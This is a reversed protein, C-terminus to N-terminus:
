KVLTAYNPKHKFMLCQLLLWLFSFTLNFVEVPAVTSTARRKLASAARELSWLQTGLVFVQLDLKLPEPGGKRAKTPVGVYTHVHVGAHISIFYIGLFSLFYM